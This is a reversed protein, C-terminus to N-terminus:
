GNGIGRAMLVALFPLIIILALEVRKIVILSKPIKVVVAKSSRNRLFFATPFASLVALVIFISLKAQFLPNSSYFESPKGVVFWLLLGCVLTVLGGLGYVTDVVVMRTLAKHDVEKQILVNQTILMSSLTILGIFHLYRVLLEEM